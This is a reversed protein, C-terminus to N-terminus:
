LAYERDQLAVSQSFNCLCQIFIIHLSEKFLIRVQHVHTYITRTKLISASTRFVKGIHTQPVAKGCVLLSRGFVPLSRRLIPLNRGFLVGLFLAAESVSRGSSQKTRGYRDESICKYCFGPGTVFLNRFRLMLKLIHVTALSGSAFFDTELKNKIIASLLRASFLIRSHFGM